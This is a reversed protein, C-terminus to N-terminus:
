IIPYVLARGRLLIMINCQLWSWSIPNIGNWYVCYYTTGIYFSETFGTENCWNIKTLVHYYKYCWTNKPSDSHWYRNCFNHLGCPRTGPARLLDLPCTLQQISIWLIWRIQMLLLNDKNSNCFDWPYDHIIRINIQM